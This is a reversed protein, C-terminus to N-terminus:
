ALAFEKRKLITEQLETCYYDALKILKHKRSTWKVQINNGKMQWRLFKLDNDDVMKNNLLRVCYMSDTYIVINRHGKRILWQLASNITQLEAEHNDVECGKFTRRKIRRGKENFVAWHHTSIGQKFGADLYVELVM